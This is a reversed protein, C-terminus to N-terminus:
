KEVERFIISYQYNEFKSCDCIIESEFGAWCCSNAMQEKGWYLKSKINDPVYREVITFSVSHISSYFENPREMKQWGSPTSSLKGNIISKDFISGGLENMVFLKGAKKELECSLNVSVDNGCVEYKVRVEGIPPVKVFCVKLNFLKRLDGGLYLLLEQRKEHKMYINTAIYEQYRTFLDSRIGLVKHQLKLNISSTVEHTTGIKEISKISTFYTFGDAQFACTGLGMGEEVLLEDDNYVLLGRDLGQSVGIGKYLHSIDFRLM